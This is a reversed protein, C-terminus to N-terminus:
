RTEDRGEHSRVARVFERIRGVDKRGAVEVGGSVDVGLPRVAAIAAGVNEPTLGGALLVPYRSTLDAAVAWDCTQGTGGFAGPQYGDLVFASAVGRFRRLEAEVEPGRVRFAKLVPVGVAAAVEPPEDGSLQAYALGCAACVEEIEAPSANVFVGVTPAGAPLERVIARVEEPSVQRRSPAFVFGLYDAGADLAARAAEVDRLGCIKVLTRM